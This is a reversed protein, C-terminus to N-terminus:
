SKRGLAAIDKITRDLPEIWSEPDTQRYLKIAPDPYWFWNEGDIGYRWASRKPTLVRTPRGMAASLHAASQCVSVTLDCASILAATHLYDWHQVISPWWLYRDPGFKEHVHAAFPIMDDYDLGVFLCDTNQFLHEAEATRLTRYTRATQIVGGHIALGVIPRGNAAVLLRERYEEAEDSDCKYTPGRGAWALDFSARDRRYMAALDGIPCKYDAAVKDDIPWRIYDEKRTPYIRMGEHAWRHLRELRPHCEFIVEGFEARADELVTAFMLEDGIGQEGWVILTKGKREDTPELVKPEPIGHKEGGYKRMLREAGLGKRYCDFGEGFRGAELYLLALNWTAGRETGIAAARELYPIGEHPNGENVFMSGMNVLAPAHNPDRELATLLVRKGEEHKNLKRYSAGLNALVFPTEDLSACYEFVRAAIAARGTQFFVNGAYFWLQPIAPFQDLAPWLLAEVQKLDNAKFAAEIGSLVQAIGIEQM